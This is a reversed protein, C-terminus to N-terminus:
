GNGRHNLIKSLDLYSEIRDALSDLLTERQERYNAIGTPLSQLGRRQRLRNLWSRRWPGNEFLGHLYTGWISLSPDVIGLGPEDFLQACKITEGNAQDPEALSTRGYYLEYGAIPLGPEPYISNIQRQRAIKQGSIVTKVPFIGIGQYRHDRGELGEPDFLFKGMMQFGGCIGLVTGGAAAYNQIAEAMGSKQLALLDAITTKSGPLVVADPHGLPDRLNVYKVTVSSEAELSDFDTFNSIRPLRIVAITVTDSRNSKRDHQEM